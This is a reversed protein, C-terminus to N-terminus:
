WLVGWLTSVDDIGGPFRCSMGVVCVAGDKESEILTGIAAHNRAEEKRDIEDNAGVGVGIACVRYIHQGLSSVTPYDYVSTPPLELGWKENVERVLQTAGLSDLGMDIFPKHADCDRQM